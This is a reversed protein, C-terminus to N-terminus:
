ASEVVLEFAGDDNHCRITSNDEELEVVEWFGEPPTIGFETLDKKIINTNKLQKFTRVLCSYLVDEEDEDADLNFVTLHFYKLPVDWGSVVEVNKGNHITKFKVQSM